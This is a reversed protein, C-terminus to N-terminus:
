NKELPNRLNNPKKRLESKFPQLNTLDPTVGSCNEPAQLSMCNNVFKKEGMDTLIETLETLDHWFWMRTEFSEELSSNNNLIVSVKKPM